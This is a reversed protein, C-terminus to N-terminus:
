RHPWSVLEIMLGWPTLFFANTLGPTPGDTFTLANSLVTVDPLERLRDIAAQVDPVEIALHVAGGRNPVPKQSGDDVDVCPWWQLLELRKGDIELMALAFSAGRSAGMRAVSEGTEDLFRDMRFVVRAGFVDTFFGVAQGLSPVVIGVHDLAGALPNQTTIM